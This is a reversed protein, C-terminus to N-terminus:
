LLSLARLDLPELADEFNLGVLLCELALPYGRCTASPSSVAQGKLDRGESRVPRISVWGQARAHRSPPEQEPSPRFAWCTSSMRKQATSCSGFCLTWTWKVTPCSVDGRRGTVSSMPIILM